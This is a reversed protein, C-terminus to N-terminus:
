VGYKHRSIRTNLSKITEGYYNNSCELYPISYVGGEAELPAPSNKVLYRTITSSYLNQILPLCWLVNISISRVITLCCWHLQHYRQISPLLPTIFSKKPQLSFKILLISQTNFQIEYILNISSCDWLTWLCSGSM